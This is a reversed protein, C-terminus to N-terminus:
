LQEIKYENLLNLLIEFRDQSIKQNINKSSMLERGTNTIQSIGDIPLGNYLFEDTQIVLVIAEVQPNLLLAICRKYLGKFPLIMEKTSESMTINHSTLFCAVRQKILTNQEKIASDMAEDGGIVVSIPIRGDGDMINKIFTSIYGKSIESWGLVPAINVENIIAGTEHWPKKIDTIIIDIGAIELGFLKAARLSIDLNDPHIDNTLDKPTGGSATSEIIRLPVLEGDKPISSLSFGSKKMAVIAESDNPFFKECLWPPNSKIKNNAEEILQSVIKQGDGKIAKPLRKIVYLLKGNAIFIRHAIGKVEKEIIINKSKSFQLAKKFAIKLEKNNSVGVTVGEGRDADVPKVVIPWGIKNAIDIANKNTAVLGNVPAPLGAMRILNSALMKNDSMKAGINSDLDTTSRSVQRSKAGCGLQYTGGGLYFFPINQQHAVRLMPMTSKGSGVMGKFKNIIEKQILGYLYEINQTTKPNNTMWDINEIAFNIITQYLINPINDINVIAVQITWKSPTKLNQDLKLITGIDFYPVLVAQLLERIFLLKRNVLSEVPNLTNDHYEIDIKLVSTLWDDLLNFDISENLNLNFIIQRTAQTCMM